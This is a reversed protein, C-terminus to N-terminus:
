IRLPWRISVNEGATRINTQQSGTSKRQVYSPSEPRTSDSRCLSGNLPWRNTNKLLRRLWTRIRMHSLVPYQKNPFLSSRPRKSDALHSFQVMCPQLEYKFPDIQLM